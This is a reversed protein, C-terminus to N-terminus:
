GNKARNDYVAMVERWNYPDWKGVYSEVWSRISKRPNGEDIRHPIEECVFKEAEWLKGEDKKDFDAPILEEGKYFYCYKLLDQETM